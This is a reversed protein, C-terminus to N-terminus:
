IYQEELYRTAKWFAPWEPETFMQKLINIRAQRKAHPSSAGTAQFRAKFEDQGKKLAEKERPQLYAKLAKRAEKLALATSKIEATLPHGTRQDRAVGNYEKRLEVFKAQLTQVQELLPQCDPFHEIRLERYRQLRQLYRQMLQNRYVNAKYMEQQIIPIFESKPNFQCRIVLM